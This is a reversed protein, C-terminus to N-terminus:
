IKLTCKEKASRHKAETVSLQEIMDVFYSGIYKIVEKDICSPTAYVHPNYWFLHKTRTYLNYVIYLKNIKVTGLDSSNKGENERVPVVHIAVRLSALSISKM